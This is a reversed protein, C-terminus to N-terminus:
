RWWCVLLLMLLFVINLYDFNNFGQNVLNERTQCNSLSVGETVGIFVSALTAIKSLTTFL